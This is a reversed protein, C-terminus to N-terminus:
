ITYWAGDWGGSAWLKGSTSVYVTMGHYTGLETLAALIVHSPTRSHRKWKLTSLAQLAAENLKM